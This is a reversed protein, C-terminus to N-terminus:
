KIRWLACFTALCPHPTLATPLVSVQAWVFPTQHEQCSARRVAVFNLLKKSIDWMQASFVRAQDMKKARPPGPCFNIGGQFNAVCFHGWPPDKHILEPLQHSSQDFILHSCSLLTLISQNEDNPQARLNAFRFFVVFFLKKESCWIQIAGLPTDYSPPHGYRGVLTEFGFTLDM